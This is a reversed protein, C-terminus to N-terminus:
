DIYFDDDWDDGDYWDENYDLSPGDGFQLGSKGTSYVIGTEVKEKAEKFVEQMLEYSEQSVRSVNIRFYKKVMSQIFHWESEWGEHETPENFNNDTIKDWNKVPMRMEDADLWYVFLCEGEEEEYEGDDNLFVEGRKYFLYNENYMIMELGDFLDFFATEAQNTKEFLIHRRHGLAKSFM